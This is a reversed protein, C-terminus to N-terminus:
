KYLDFVKQMNEKFQDYQKEVMENHSEMLRTAKTADSLFPYVVGSYIANIPALAIMKVAEWGTMEPLAMLMVGLLPWPKVTEDQIEALAEEYSIKQFGNYDAVERFQEPLDRLNWYAYDTSFPELPWRHCHRWKGNESVYGVERKAKEADAHAKNIINTLDHPLEGTWGYERYLDTIREAIQEAENEIKTSELFEELYQPDKQLRQQHLQLRERAAEAREIKDRKAYEIIDEERRDKEELKQIYQDEKDM